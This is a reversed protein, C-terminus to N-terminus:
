KATVFHWMIVAWDPRIWIRQLDDGGYRGGKRRLYAPACLTM